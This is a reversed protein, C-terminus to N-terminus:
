DDGSKLEVSPRSVYPTQCVNGFVKAGNPAIATFKTVFIDLGCGFPDYGGVKLPKYGLVILTRYAGKEDTAWFPATAMFLVFIVVGIALPVRIPHPPDDIPPLESKEEGDNKKRPKDM